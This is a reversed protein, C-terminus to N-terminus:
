KGYFKTALMSYPDQGQGFEVHKTCQKHRMSMASSTTKRPADNFDEFITGGMGLSTTTQRMFDTGTTKSATTNFWGTPNTQSM